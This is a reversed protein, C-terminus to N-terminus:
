SKKAQPALPSEGLRGMSAALLVFLATEAKVTAADAGPVFQSEVNLAVVSLGLAAPEDGATWSVKAFKRLVRLMDQRGRDSADIYKERVPGISRAINKFILLRAYDGAQEIRESIDDLERRMVKGRTDQAANM